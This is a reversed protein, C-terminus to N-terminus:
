DSGYAVQRRFMCIGPWLPARLLKDRISTPPRTCSGTRNFMSSRATSRYRPTLACNTLPADQEWPLSRVRTSGDGASGGIVVGTANCYLLRGRKVSLFFRQRDQPSLPQLFAEEGSVGTDSDCIKIVAQEALSAVAPAIQGAFCEEFATGGEFFNRGLQKNISTCLTVTHSEIFYSPRFHRNIVSKSRTLM